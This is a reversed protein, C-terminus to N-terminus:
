RIYAKCAGLIDSTRDGIKKRRIAPASRAVSSRKAPTKHEFVTPVFDRHDRDSSPEGQNCKEVVLANMSRQQTGLLMHLAVLQEQQTPLLDRRDGLQAIRCRLFASKGLQATVNRNTRNDFCPRFHPDDRHANPRSLSKGGVGTSSSWSVVGGPAPRGGRDVPPAPGPVLGSSSSSSLGSGLRQRFNRETRAAEWFTVEARLSGSGPGGRGGKRGM